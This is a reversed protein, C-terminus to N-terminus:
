SAFMVFGSSRLLLFFFGPAVGAASGTIWGSTAPMSTPLVCCQTQPGGCPSVGFTRTNPVVVTSSFASASQSASCRTFDTAMSLVYM